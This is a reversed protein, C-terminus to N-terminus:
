GFAGPDANLKLLASRVIQADTELRPADGTGALLVVQFDQPCLSRSLIHKSESVMNVGIWRPILVLLKKPYPHMLLDLIAGRVQKNTRSEIEVAIMSDVTGDIRAHSVEYAITTGYASFRTGVAARLVSKGYGDHKQQNSPTGSAEPVPFPSAGGALRAFTVVGRELDVSEVEWGTNLWSAAHVHGKRDNAWWSRYTRASVPLSDHIIEEIASFTLTLAGKQQLTLYRELPGYKGM